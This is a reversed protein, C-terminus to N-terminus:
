GEVTERHIKLQFRDELLAQMMPGLMMTVSPNGEATANIRYFASAVWAPSGTVPTPEANINLYGSAYGNYASGIFNLLGNCDSILRGPKSNASPGNEPESCSRISAVEFKPTNAPASQAQILPASIVGIALPTSLIVVVMAALLVKSGASLERAFCG